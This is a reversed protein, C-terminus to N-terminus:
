KNQPTESDASTLPSISSCIKTEMDTIKWCIQFLFHQPPPPMLLLFRAKRVHINSLLTKAQCGTQFPISHFPFPFWTDTPWYILSLKWITFSFYFILKTGETRMEAKSILTWLWLILLVTSKLFNEAWNLFAKYLPSCFDFIVLGQCAVGWVGSHYSDGARWSDGIGATLFWLTIFFPLGALHAQLIHKRWSLINKTHLWWDLASSWINFGASTLFWVIFHFM